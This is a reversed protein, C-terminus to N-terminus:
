QCLIAAYVAGFRRSVHERLLGKDVKQNRREAGSRYSNVYTAALELIHENM